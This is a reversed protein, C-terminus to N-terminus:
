IRHDPDHEDLEHKLHRWADRNNKEIEV